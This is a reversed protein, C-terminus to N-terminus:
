ASIEILLQLIRSAVGIVAKAVPFWIIGEVSSAKNSPNRVVPISV